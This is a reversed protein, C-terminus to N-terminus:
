FRIGLLFNFNDVHSFNQIPTGIFGNANEYQVELFLRLNNRITHEYGITMWYGYAKPKIDYGGYSVETFVDGNFGERETLTKISEEVLFSTSFGVKLYPTNDRKFNYRFGIPVKVYTFDM